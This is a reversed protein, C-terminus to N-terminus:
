LVALLSEWKVVRNRGATKAGYLAEDARRILETADCDGTWTAIGISASTPLPADSDALFPRSALSQRLREGLGRAQESDCNRLVLLFEEGGYRGVTDYPRVSALLHDAIERLVCDGVLHGRSDNIGKFHDVDVLAISVPETELDRRSIERQLIDVIANRNWLGTLGDHTAREELQQMTRLLRDQLDLVRTGTILRARLEDPDYPKFLFDDAGANLADVMEFRNARGTILMIYRYPREKERRVEQCIEVGNMGPMHWDLLGLMPADPERLLELAADGDYAKITQYGWVACLKALSEVADRQDDAILVRM